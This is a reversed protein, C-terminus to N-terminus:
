SILHGATGFPTPRSAGFIGTGPSAIKSCVFPCNLFNWSSTMKWMKKLNLEIYEIHKCFIFKQANKTDLQQKKKAAAYSAFM